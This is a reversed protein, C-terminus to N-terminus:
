NNQIQKQLNKKEERGKRDLERTIQHSDITNHKLKKKKQTHIDISYKANETVM